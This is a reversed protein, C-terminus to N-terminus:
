IISLQNNLKLIPKLSQSAKNYYKQKRKRKSKKRSKPSNILEKKHKTKKKM